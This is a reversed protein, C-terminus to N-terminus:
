SRLHFSAKMALFNCILPKEYEEIYNAHELLLEYEREASKYQQSCYTCKSFLTLKKVVLETYLAYATENSPAANHLREKGM